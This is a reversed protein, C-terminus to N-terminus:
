GTAARPAPALIPETPTGSPAHHTTDFAQREAHRRTVTGSQRTGSQRTGSQRTGSQRTGSQRTGSQRTVSQRTGSQRTVSQRTLVSPPSPGAAPYRRM